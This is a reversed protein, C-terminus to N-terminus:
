EHTAVVSVIGNNEQTAYKVNGYTVSDKYNKVGPLYLGMVIGIRNKENPNLVGVIPEHMANFLKEDFPLASITSVSELKNENEVVLIEATNFKCSYVVKKKREIKPDKIKVNDKAIANYKEIFTKADMKFASTQQKQSPEQKQKEDGCGACLVLLTLLLVFIKKM